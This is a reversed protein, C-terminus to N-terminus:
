KSLLPIGVCCGRFMSACKPVHETLTTYSNREQDLPLIAWGYAVPLNSCAAIIFQLPFNINM